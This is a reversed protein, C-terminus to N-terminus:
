RVVRRIPADARCSCVGVVLGILTTAVLAGHQVRSAEGRRLASTTDTM